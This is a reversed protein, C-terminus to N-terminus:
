TISAIHAALTGRLEMRRKGFHLERHCKPCLAAANLLTDDGNEALPTIHHVELYTSDDDRQISEVRCEPMECRGGARALTGMVVAASRAFDSRSVVRKAPRGAAQKAKAILATRTDFDARKAVAEAIQLESGIQETVKAAFLQRGINGIVVFDGQDLWDTIFERGIRPEPPRDAGERESHYFSAVVTKNRELFLTIEFPDAPRNESPRIGAAQVAALQERNLVYAAKGKDTKTVQKVGFNEFCRSWDISM